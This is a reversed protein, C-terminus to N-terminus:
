SQIAGNLAPESMAAGVPELITVTEQQATLAQFQKGLRKVAYIWGAIVFALIVAVYPTCLSVSGLMMILCQYMIAGGSKGLRSGVGDIAAKGKLRCERSLPIFAMEKTADYFTYKSARSLCNQLSGFFVSLALPTVGLFTSVMGGISHDKLLLFSFFGIGTVLVIVAPILATCTWSLRRIVNGSIIISVISSVVGMARLVQGMYANYDNPNPYLHKMQDKWIVETLNIAINYGVVIIAMYFLYKSKWIYSFNKRMSMRVKEQANEGHVATGDRYGLGHVHLWRFLFIIGFGAVVVLVNLFLISQGWPDDGFPLILKSGLQSIFVLMQGALCGAVNGGILVLAYFRKAEKVNTVENAFGWFLVTMIMTSWLESMIYFASYTWNRLIAVFGGCGAPLFAQLKDATEHPHLVDRLPYLVTAFLLFFTLFGGIIVYFVREREFRNSLRTFIYTMLIAMPLIAWVKLFPIIEAGSSPATVVLADKAGRLLNYNFCIFFYIILMPVFRRYEGKHVPWLFSRFGCLLQAFSM